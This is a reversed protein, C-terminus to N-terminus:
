SPDEIEMRGSERAPEMFVLSLLIMAGGAMQWANLREHLILYALVLICPLEAISVVSAHFAGIKRIALYMLNMPLVTSFLALSVIFLWQRSSFDVTFWYRSPMVTMMSLTSVSSTVTTIVQSSFAHSLRQGHINMFAYAAAAGISLLLGLRDIKDAGGHIPDVALAVGTIALALSIWEWAFARRREVVMQYLLVLVPYTFLILSLLSVDIRQAAWFYCVSIAFNGGLGQLILAFWQSPKIRPRGKTLLLMPWMCAIACVNQLTLLSAPHLGAEYALKILIASAGYSCAALFMLLIGYFHSM